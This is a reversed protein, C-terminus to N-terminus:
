SALTYPPSITIHICWRRSTRLLFTKRKSNLQKSKQSLANSFFLYSLIFSLFSSLYLSLKILNLITGVKEMWSKKKFSQIYQPIITGICCVGCGDVVMVFWHQQLGPCFIKKPYFAVNGFLSPTKSHTHTTKHSLSISFSISLYISTYISIYTYSLYISLRRCDPLASSSLFIFPTELYDQWWCGTLVRRDM